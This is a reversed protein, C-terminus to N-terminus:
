ISFLDGEEAGASPVDAGWRYYACNWGQEQRGRVRNVAVEGARVFHARGGAHSHLEHEEVRFTQDDDPSAARAEDGVPTAPLRRRVNAHLRDDDDVMWVVNWSARWFVRATLDSSLRDTNAGFRRAPDIILCTPQRNSDGEDVNWSM